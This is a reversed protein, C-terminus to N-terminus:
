RDNHRHYSDDDDQTVTTRITQVNNGANPDGLASTVRATNSVIGSAAPRVAIQWAVSRDRDLRGVQCSVTGSSRTCGSSASVFAVGTPLTDIVTVM